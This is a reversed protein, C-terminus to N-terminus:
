IPPQLNAVPVITFLLWTVIMKADLIGGGLEGDFIWNELLNNPGSVRLDTYDIERCLLEYLLHIKM